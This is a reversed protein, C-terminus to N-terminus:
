WIVALGSSKRSTLLFLWHCDKNEQRINTDLLLNIVAPVINQGGSVNRFADKNDSM